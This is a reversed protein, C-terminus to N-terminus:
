LSYALQSPHLLVYKRETRPYTYKVGTYVPYLRMGDDLVLKKMLDERLVGLEPVQLDVSSQDKKDISDLVFLTKDTDNNKTHTNQDGEVKNETEKPITEEKTNVNSVDAISEQPKVTDLEEITKEKPVSSQIQKNQTIAVIDKPIEESGNSERKIRKEFEESHRAIDESLKNLVKLPADKVKGLLSKKGGPIRGADVYTHKKVVSEEEADRKTRLEVGNAFPGRRMFNTRELSKFIQNDREYDAHFLRGSRPYIYFIRPHSTGASGIIREEESSLGETGVGAAVLVCLVFVHGQVRM